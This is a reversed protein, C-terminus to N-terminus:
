QVGDRQRNPVISPADTLLRLTEEAHAVKPDSLIAEIADLTDDRGKRHHKFQDLEFGVLRLAEMITTLQDKM